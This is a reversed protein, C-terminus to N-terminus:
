AYIDGGPTKFIATGIRVMNSGEEIAVEFDNTMGMSLYKMEIQLGQKDALNDFIKKLRAFYKRLLETEEIFPAMMMLGKVCVNKLSAIEEAKSEIEDPHFGAKTPEGSVNVELLVDQVKNIERARRDIETALSVSDVSQILCVFPIIYRVKNRQLHGIFHWNPKTGIVEIKELLEKSRNEGLNNEGLELLKKIDNVPQNKTVAILTIDKPDRGSRVAAEAIRKKVSDLNKEIQTKL